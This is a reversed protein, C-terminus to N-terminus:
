LFQYHIAPFAPLHQWVPKSSSSVSPHLCSVSEPLSLGLVILCQCQVFASISEISVNVFALAHLAHLAHLADHVEM